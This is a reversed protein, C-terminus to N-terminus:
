AGQVIGRGFFYGTRDCILEVPFNFHLSLIVAFIGQNQLICLFHVRTTKSFVSSYTSCYFIKKWNMSWLDEDMMRTNWALWTSIQERAQERCFLCPHRPRLSSTLFLVSLHLGPQFVREHHILIGRVYLLWFYKLLKLCWFYKFNFWDLM